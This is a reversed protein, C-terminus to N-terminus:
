DGKNEEVKRMDITLVLPDPDEDTITFDDQYLVIYGDASAIFCYAVNRELANDLKWEGTRDSEAFAYVGDAPYKKNKWEEMTLGPSLAAAFGGKIPKRTVQDRLKGQVTVYSQEEEKKGKNEILTKASKDGILVTGSALLQRGSYFEVLYAGSPLASDREEARLVVYLIDGKDSPHLRMTETSVQSYTSPDADAAGFSFNGVITMQRPICSYEFGAAIAQTGRPYSEVTQGTDVYNGEQDFGFWAVDGKIEFKTCGKDAPLFGAPVAAARWPDLGPVGYDAAHLATAGTTAHLTAVLLALLGVVAIVARPKDKM